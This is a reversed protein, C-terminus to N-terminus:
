PMDPEGEKRAAEHKLFNRYNLEPYREMMVQLMAASRRDKDERVRDTLRDAMWQLPDMLPMVQYDKPKMRFPLLCMHQASIVAKVLEKQKRRSLMTTRRPLIYGNDALFHQIIDLDRFTIRENALQVQLPSPEWFKDPLRFPKPPQDPVEQRQHIRFSSSYPNYVGRSMRALSRKIQIRTRKAEAAGVIRQYEDFEATVQVKLDEVQHFPSWYPDINHRAAAGQLNSVADSRPDVRAFIKRTLEIEDQKLKKIADTDEWVPQRFGVDGMQAREQASGGLMARRQRVGDMLEQLMSDASGSPSVKTEQMVLKVAAEKKSAGDSALGRTSTARRVRSSAFALRLRFPRFQQLCSM